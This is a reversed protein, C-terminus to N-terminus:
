EPDAPFEVTVSTGDLGLIQVQGDLQESLTSVLQLGVSATVETGCARMGVGNDSVTLRVRNPGNHKLTVRITGGRDEPFAHKMANTLLENLILGCPIVKNMGLSVAEADISLSVGAASADTAHLVNDALSSIYDSFCVHAYDCSQGLKEHILAVAEFRTKCEVLVDRPVGPELKRVQMNILSSIVQLNNKVRHHVERLLVDRDKLSDLLEATRENMQRMSHERETIDLVSVLTLDADPLPTFSLDIPFETGNKRLARPKAGTSKGPSRFALPTTKSSRDPGGLALGPILQRLPSGLLEERKYGFMRDIQANAFTVKGDADTTMMGMPAAEFAVRLTDNTVPM